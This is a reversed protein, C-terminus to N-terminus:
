TIKNQALKKIEENTYGLGALVEETHQGLAPPASRITGPTKSLKAPFAIQRIKGETPHDMESILNRHKVHPHEFVETFNNVPECCCDIDKFFEVWEDMTKGVFIDELQNFVEHGRAGIDFQRDLLDQREVAHCFATWFRPELAGLAMYRRDKTRYVNYCPIGGNLMTSGPVPNEGDVFYKGAFMNLWSVAGDLMAVDIYQGEGTKGRAMLAALISIVAPMAGGGVDAVQIGPISPVGEGTGTFGLIGALALYNIDHGARQELPGDQGYGSISCYVLRPNVEELVSYGLGLKKMVGPRYGELLVDAKRVLEFLIERGQETKLNLTLSKKNRNIALYMAGEKNAKPPFDRLYDGRGPEEVKIVDAGLDALMMSCYPGPLLRSLDVVTLGALAGNIEIASSM